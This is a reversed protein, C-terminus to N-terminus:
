PATVITPASTPVVTALIAVPQAVLQANLTIKSKIMSPVLVGYDTLELTIQGSASVQGDHMALTVPMQVPLTQGHLELTGVATAMTPTAGLDVAPIDVNAIFHAYPFHTTDLMSKLIDIGINGPSTASNGDIQLDIAVHTQSAQTSVILVKGKTNFTGNVLLNGLTLTVYFRISSHEDDLTYTKVDPLPTVIVPAATLTPAATANSGGSACGSMVLLVAIIFSLNILRVQSLSKIKFM